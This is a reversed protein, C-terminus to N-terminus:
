KKENGMLMNSYLKPSQGVYMKFCKGFYNPDSFGVKYAIEAITMRKETLLTIAKSCRIELLLTNFNKGLHKILSKSVYSSSFGIDSSMKELSIKESYHSNLYDLSLRVIPNKSSPISNKYRSIITEIDGSDLNRKELIRNLIGNLEKAEFPKVLYDFAGLRIASQAYEFNSHATIFVINIKDNQAKLVKAVEIGSCLPMQIDLLAIDLNEENAKKIAALGNDCTGIVYIKNAYVGEIYKKLWILENIEDDAILMNLM